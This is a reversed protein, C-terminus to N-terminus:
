EAFIRGLLAWLAAWFGTPASAPDGATEPAGADHGPQVPEASPRSRVGVMATATAEVNRVRRAWGTGFTLFTSLTQLWALRATCLATIIAVPRAPSQVAALTLPGMKGDQATGVIKQLFKVARAPGSNVAFDFVAYDIGNPLDDGLVADWYRVKYIERLQTDTINRLDEKTLRNNRYFGRFTALTIGKMTAGGPDKPHDSWGGEHVLVLALSREFNSRM